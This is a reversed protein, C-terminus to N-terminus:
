ANKQEKRKKYKEKLAEIEQTVMKKHNEMIDIVEGCLWPDTYALDGIKGEASFYEIYCKKTSDMTIRMSTIVVPIGKTRGNEVVPVWVKDGIKHAGEDLEINM